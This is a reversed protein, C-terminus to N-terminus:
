TGADDDPDLGYYAFHAIHARRTEDSLKGHGWDPGAAIRDLLALVIVAHGPHTCVYPHRVRARIQALDDENLREFQALTLSDPAPGQETM